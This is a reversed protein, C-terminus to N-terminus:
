VHRSSDSNNNERNTVLIKEKASGFHIFEDGLIQENFIEFFNLLVNILITIILFEKSSICSIKLDRLIIKSM